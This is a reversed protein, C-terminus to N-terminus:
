VLGLGQSIPMEQSVQTVAEVAKQHTTRVYLNHHNTIAQISMEQTARSCVCSNYGGFCQLATKSAMLLLMSNSLTFLSVVQLHM